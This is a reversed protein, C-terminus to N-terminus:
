SSPPSHQLAEWLWQCCNSVILLMENDVLPIIEVKERYSLFVLFLIFVVYFSVPQVEVDLEHRFSDRQPMAFFVPNLAFRWISMKGASGDRVCAQFRPVVLM